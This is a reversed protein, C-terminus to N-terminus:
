AHPTSNEPIGIINMIASWHHQVVSGIISGAIISLSRRTNYSLKHKVNRRLENEKRWLLILTGLTGAVSGTPDFHYPNITHNAANTLFGIIGIGIANAGECVIFDLFDLFELDTNALLKCQYSFPIIAGLAASFKFSSLPSLTASTSNQSYYSVVFPSAAIVLHPIVSVTKGIRRCFNSNDFDTSFCFKPNFALVLLIIIGILYEQMKNM